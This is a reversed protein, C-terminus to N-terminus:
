GHPYLERIDGILNRLGKISDELREIAERVEDPRLQPIDLKTHCVNAIIEINKTFHGLRQQEVDHTLAKKAREGYIRAVIPKILQHAVIRRHENLVRLAEDAAKREEPRLDNRDHILIIERMKGYSHDSLGVRKGAHYANGIETELKLAARTAEELSNFGRPLPIKGGAPADFQNEMPKVLEKNGELANCMAMVNGAKGNEVAAIQEPTGKEALVRARRMTRKSVGAIKAAEILSLVPTAKQGSSSKQAFQNSGQKQFETFKALALARQMPTLHRRQVNASWVFDLPDGDVCELKRLRPKLGLRDCAIYRNRGDLVKGEHMVIIERQGHAKIDAVLDALAEEDMLPFISAFEHFEHKM